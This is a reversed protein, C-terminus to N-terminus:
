RTAIRVSAAAAAATAGAAASSTAQALVHGFRDWSSRTGGVRDGPSVTIEVEVVGPLAAAREAGEVAIVEGAEGTLFRIAAAGNSHPPWVSAGGLLVDFYAELLPFGYALTILQTIQGGPIRAACEVLTPEGAGAIWEAHLIGDGFRAAAALTSTAELLRDILDAPAGAPVIHGLEVPYWGPMVQKATVNAFRCSGGSVLMEV